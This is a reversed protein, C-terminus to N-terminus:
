INASEADRRVTVAALGCLMAALVYFGLGGLIAARM